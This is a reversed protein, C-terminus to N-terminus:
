FADSESKDFDEDNFSDNKEDELKSDNIKDESFKSDFTENKKIKDFESIFSVKKDEKKLEKKKVNKNKEIDNKKKKNSKNNDKKLKKNVEEKEIKKKKNNKNLKKIEKKEVIKKDQSFKSDFIEDPKSKNEIKSNNEFDSNFTNNKENEDKEIKKEKGNNEKKNEQINKKQIKNFILIESEQIIEKIDYKKQNMLLKKSKFFNSINLLDKNLYFFNINLKLFDLIHIRKGSDYNKLNNFIEESFKKKKLRKEYTLLDNLLSGFNNNIFFNCFDEKLVSEDLDFSNIIFLNKENSGELVCFIEDLYQYDLNYLKLYIIIYSLFLNSNQNDQNKENKKLDKKKLQNKLKKVEKEMKIIAIDINNENENKSLKSIKLLRKSLVRKKCKKRKELNEIKKIKLFIKTIRNEYEEIEFKLFERKEFFDEAESEMVRDEEGKLKFIEQDISNIFIVNEKYEFFLTSNKLIEIEKNKENIDNQLQCLERELNRVFNISFFLRGKKVSKLNDIKVELNELSKKEDQLIEMLKENCFKVYNEAKKLRRNQEDLEEINYKIQNVKTRKIRTMFGHFNTSLYRSIDDGKISKVWDMTPKQSKIQYLYQNTLSNRKKKIIQSPDM